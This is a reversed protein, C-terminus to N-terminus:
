NAPFSRFCTINLFVFKEIGVLNQLWTRVTVFLQTREDLLADLLLFLPRGLMVEYARIGSAGAIIKSEGNSFRSERRDLHVASDQLSHTWLIAFSRGPGADRSSFTGSVEHEIIINCIAGEIEHNSFSLCTQLQWLSRVTEVHYKPQSASLYSWAQRVLPDVLASLDDKSIYSNPYLTTVLSIMSTFASFPLYASTSLRIHISSLLEKVLLGTTTPSKNLVTVLLRAKTAIDVSSMPAELSQSNIRGAKRVLLQCVNRISLPPPSADLNGQDQMYFNRVKELIEDNDRDLHLMRQQDNLSSTQGPSPRSNFAREPILEILDMAISIALGSVDEVDNVNTLLSTKDKDKANELMALLTLAAIPAHIMLMEEERVNFNAIVFKVLSLKGLAEAPKDTGLAATILRIIEGWILGSEVGDFFMSASRLVENFDAKTISQKQYRQVNRIVPLFIEPVVLGGIEWRDMLSLCIRFPKARELPTPHDRNIMKLIGMTLPKLGYQEFYHTRSWSDADMPDEAPLTPSTPSETSSSPEPGLFWAWLRRNLSMDRRSVVGSAAILLLELDEQKVLNQLVRAHLPLHTVLLDLYGRQILIQDDSLGAAFCRILLGPEPSTVVATMQDTVVQADDKSLGTTSPGLSNRRLPTGLRPLNRTLYALAGARRNSSTISALFFCQWFYEDRPGKNPQITDPGQPRVALKFSDVLKLTREFDESTEEELGPLLALIIAKLAPRLATSDLKLLHTELLALFPSRVNLSAFSLTSSLGPLYIPLDRSLSDKGVLSFIFNYVELAKQHVGSPLSPNLCQALRRAVISKSPIV